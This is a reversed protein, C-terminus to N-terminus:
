KATPDNHMIGFINKDTDILYALWGMGPIPMKPLAVLAGLAVAEELKTDVNEVEITCVFGKVPTEKTPAAGMRRVM